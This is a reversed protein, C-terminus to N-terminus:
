SCEFDDGITPHCLDPWGKARWYDVLGSDRLGKKFQVTRRVESLMPWWVLQGLGWELMREPEGAAVYVFNLESDFRPLPSPLKQKDALANLIAAAAALNQRNIEGDENNVKLLVAASERYRGQQAYAEALSTAIRAAAVGM